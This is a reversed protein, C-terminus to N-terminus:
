GSQEGVWPRCQLTVDPNRLLFLDDICDISEDLVGIDETIFKDLLEGKPSKNGPALAAGSNWSLSIPRSFSQILIFWDGYSRNMDKISIYIITVELDFAKNIHPVLNAREGGSVEEPM